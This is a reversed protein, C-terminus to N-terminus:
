ASPHEKEWAAFIDLLDAGGATAWGDDVLITAGNVGMAEDSALFFAANAVWEPRIWIHRNHYRAVEDRAPPVDYVSAAMPTITAGPSVANVRIKQKGLQFAAAQTISKMAGKSGIYGIPDWTGIEANVSTTNVISGEIGLRAMVRSVLQIMNLSGFVNVKFADAVATHDFGLIGDRDGLIGANNYLADIRGYARETAEVVQACADYDSVDCPMAVVDYGKATADAVVQELGEADIDVAVVRMGGRAFREVAAAGIGKACGTIICTKKEEM